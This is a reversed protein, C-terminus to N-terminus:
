ANRIIRLIDSVLQGPTNQDVGIIVDGASITLQPSFHSIGSTQGCTHAAAKSEGPEPLEVFSPTQLSDLVMAQVQRRRYYFAKAGIHNRRCWERVSLGSAAQEQVMAAWSERRMARITLSTDM